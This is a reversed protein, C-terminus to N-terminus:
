EEEEAKRRRALMIDKLFNIGVAAAIGRLLWSNGEAMSELATIRKEQELARHYNDAVLRDILADQQGIKLAMSTIRENLIETNVRGQSYIDASLGASIFFLAFLSSRVIFLRCLKMAIARM